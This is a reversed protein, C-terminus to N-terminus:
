LRMCIFAKENRLILQKRICLHLHVWGCAVMNCRCRSHPLWFPVFKAKRTNDPAPLLRPSVLSQTPLLERRNMYKGKGKFHLVMSVSQEVLNFSFWWLFSFPVRVPIFRSDVDAYSEGPPSLEHPLLVQFRIRLNCGKQSALCTFLDFM